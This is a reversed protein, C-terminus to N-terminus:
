LSLAESVMCINHTCIEEQGGQHVTVALTNM